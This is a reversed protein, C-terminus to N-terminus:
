ARASRAPLWRFLRKRFLKKLCLNFMSVCLDRHCLKILQYTCAGTHGVSVVTQIAQYLPKRCNLSPVWVATQWRPFGRARLHAGLTCM